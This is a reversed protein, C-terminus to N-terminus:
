GTGAAWFPQGEWEGSRVRFRGPVLGLVGKLADPSAPGQVALLVTQERLPELSVESAAHARFRKVIEDFNVGNPLVWYDEDGHRWVIIDDEVGGGENLAMTYQARGPGIKAVDNCLQGRLLDTAGSGSVRFRGLHSVDFVGVGERVAWHEAIVGQYRLPMEWGGFDTFRAGLEEHLDRLHTTEAM